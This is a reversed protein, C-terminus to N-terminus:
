TLTKQTVAFQPSQQTIPIYYLTRGALSRVNSIPQTPVPYAPLPQELKTVAASLSSQTAAPLSSAGGSSSGSGCAALVTALAAAAGAAALTRARRRARVATTMPTDGSTM